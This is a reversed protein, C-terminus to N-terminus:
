ELQKIPVGASLTLRHYPYAGPSACAKFVERKNAKGGEKGEM